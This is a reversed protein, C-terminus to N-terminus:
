LGPWIITLYYQQRMRRAYFVPFTGNMEIVATNNIVGNSLISLIVILLSVM